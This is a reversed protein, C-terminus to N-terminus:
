TKKTGLKALIEEANIRDRQYEEWIGQHWEEALDVMLDVTQSADGEMSLEWARECLMYAYRERYRRDAEEVVASPRTHPKSFDALESYVTTAGQMVMTYDSLEKAVQERDLSGYPVEVIDAWLVWYEVMYDPAGYDKLHAAFGAAGYSEESTRWGGCRCSEVENQLDGDIAFRPEHVRWGETM